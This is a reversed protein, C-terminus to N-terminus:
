MKKKNKWRILVEENIKMQKRKKEKQVNKRQSEQLKRIILEKEEIENNTSKSKKKSITPQM